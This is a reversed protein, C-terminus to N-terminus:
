SGRVRRQLTCDGHRHVAASSSLSITGNETTNCDTTVSSTGDALSVLVAGDLPVRETGPLCLSETHRLGLARRARAVSASSPPAVVQRSSPVVFQVLTLSDVWEHLSEPLDSADQFGWVLFSTRKSSLAGTLDVTMLGVDALSAMM